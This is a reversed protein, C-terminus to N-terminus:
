LVISYISATTSIYKELKLQKTVIAELADSTTTDTTSRTASNSFLNVYGSTDINYYEGENAQTLDDAVTATTQSAGAAIVIDTIVVTSNSGVPVINIITGDTSDVDASTIVSAFDTELQTAIAAMTTATDSAFTVQTMAVGNVDMDITNSTVLAGAFDLALWKGEVVVRTSVDAVTYPVEEKAVTQNDSDFTKTISNLGIIKATVSNQTIVGSVKHVFNWAVSALSNTAIGSERRLDNKTGNEIEAM